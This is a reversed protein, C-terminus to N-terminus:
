VIATKNFSSLIDTYQFQFGAQKIKENSVASGELLMNAMEGLLIKLIFAPAPPTLIPRKISKALYKAMSKMTIMESAVANFIGSFSSNEIAFKYINALDAIDIWPMQQKGSGLSTNIGLRALSALKTYAGGNGIVIGKRLIVVKTGIEAFRLAEKEWVICIGALFDNGAPSLETFIENSTKMGYYGVASSSIIKEIKLNNKKATEFLLRTSLIRSDILQKKRETTWRKEGINAGSLNIIIDVNQYANLDIDNNQPDWHFFLIKDKNRVSPNKSRTLIHITHGDCWLLKILEKGVFGSGGAILITKSPM